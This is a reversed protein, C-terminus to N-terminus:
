PAALVHHALRLEADRGAKAGRSKRSSIYTEVAGRVTVAAAREAEARAAAVRQRVWARAAGQSQDFTLVRAGDAPMDPTDDAAALLETEYRGASLYRRVLWTGARGAVTSRRYGIHV